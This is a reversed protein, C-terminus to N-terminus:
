NAEPGVHEKLRATVTYGVRNMTQIAWVTGTLDQLLMTQVVGVDDRFVADAERAARVRGAIVDQSIPADVIRALVYGVRKLRVDKGLAENDRRVKRLVELRTNIM